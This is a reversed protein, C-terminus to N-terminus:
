TSTGHNLGKPLEINGDITQYAAYARGDILIEFRLQGPSRCAKANRPVRSFMAITADREGLLQTVADLLTPDDDHPGYIKLM